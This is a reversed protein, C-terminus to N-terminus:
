VNVIEGNVYRVSINNAPTSCDECFVKTKYTDKHLKVNCFSLDEYDIKSLCNSCVHPLKEWLSSDVTVKNRTTVPIVTNVTSPRLWVYTVNKTEVIYDVLGTYTIDTSFKNEETYDFFYRIYTNDAGLVSGYVLGAARTADATIYNYKQVETITFSIISNKTYTQHSHHNEICVNGFNQKTVVGTPVPKKQLTKTFFSVSEEEIKNTENLDIKYLTGPKLSFTNKVKKTTFYYSERNIIWDALAAESSIYWSDDTEIINLPRKDNRVLYLNKETVNYWVLAFAGEIEKLAQKYGKEQILITIANSDSSTNAHKKHDTITGNHILIIDKYIFPHANEDTVEGLTAKRNHGFLFRGRMFAEQLIDKCKKSALFGLPPSAEKAWLVKNEYTVTFIGTSDLGRIADCYLMHSFNETDEKSFGNKAKTIVGVIGCM